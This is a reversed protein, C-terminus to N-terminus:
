MVPLPAGCSACLEMNLDNPRSCYPCAIKHVVVSVDRKSSFDIGGVFDSRSPLPPFGEMQRVENVTLFASNIMIQLDSKSAM